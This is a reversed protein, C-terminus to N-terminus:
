PRQGILSTHRVLAPLLWHEVRGLPPGTEAQGDALYRTCIEALYLAAVLEAEGPGVGLPALVAASGAVAQDAAAAPEARGRVVAGQLQYHVADFGVPVGCQFREWDWALVRGAATTMNWPTWDGHWAGFSLQSAAAPWLGDLAQLVQRAAAQRYGDAAPQGALALQELRGRLRQWYPSGAAARRETGAVGALETMARTLLASGAAAARGAPLPEQVLVERGRWQGHHLLRPARLATLQATALTTLAAAEARVLEGTLEGAGVKVFGLPTGDPALALLVPKRNARPPPVYVSLVADPRLRARLYGGIDVASGAEAPGPPEIRIRGPLADALGAAAAAALCRLGLRDWSGASAKYHRLAAAAARRPRRPLLLVPRGPSPFAVLEIAGPVPGALRAPRSVRAPPPWLVALLEPVYGARSATV